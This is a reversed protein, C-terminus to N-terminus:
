SNRAYGGYLKDIQKEVQEEMYQEWWYLQCERCHCTQVDGTCVPEDDPPDLLHDPLSM